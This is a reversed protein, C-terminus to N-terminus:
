HMGLDICDTVLPASLLYFVTDVGERQLALAALRSATVKAM